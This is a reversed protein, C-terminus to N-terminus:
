LSSAVKWVPMQKDHVSFAAGESSSCHHPWDLACIEAWWLAEVFAAQHQV